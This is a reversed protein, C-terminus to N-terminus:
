APRKRVKKIVKGPNTKRRSAEPLEWTLPSHSGFLARFIDRNIRFHSAASSSGYTNKMFFKGRLYRHSKESPRGCRYEVSVNINSDPVEHAASETLLQPAVQGLIACIKAISPALMEESIGYFETPRLRKLFNKTMIWDMDQERLRNIEESEFGLALAMTALRKWYQEDLAKVQPKPKGVTKELHSQYWTRFVVGRQWGHNFIDM